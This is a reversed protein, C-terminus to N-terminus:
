LEGISRLRRQEARSGALIVQFVAEVQEPDLKQLAAEDRIVAVLEAERAPSRVSMGREAKVRGIELALDRRRSLMRVIDRDVLDIAKRMRNIGLAEMLQAFESAALQGASNVLAQDPAPHVEVALGDAGVGQAALALPVVRARSGASHSPLVIVPLHTREKVIPVSSIDLTDDDAFTRIGRECLVVQDNGEALIYEAAWLWEDITASPGRKLLVPREQQGVERLLEFNQMNGAGIEIMDAM